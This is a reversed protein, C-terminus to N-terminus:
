YPVIAYYLQKTKPDIGVLLRGTSAEVYGGEYVTRRLNELAREINEAFPIFEGNPLGDKGFCWWTWRNARFVVVAARVCDQIMSFRIRYDQHM